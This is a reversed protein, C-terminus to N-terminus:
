NDDTPSVVDGKGGPKSGSPVSPEYAHTPKEDGVFEAGPNSGGGVSPAPNDKNLTVESAGDGAWQVDGM